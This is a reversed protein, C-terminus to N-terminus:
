ITSMLPDSIDNKWMGDWRDNGDWFDTEVQMVSCYKFSHFCVSCHLFKGRPRDTMHKLISSNSYWFNVKKKWFLLIQLYLSNHQKVVQMLSVPKLILRWIRIAQQFIMKISCQSAEETNDHNSSNGFCFLSSKRQLYLGFHSIWLYRRM